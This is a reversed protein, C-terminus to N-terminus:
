DGRSHFSSGGHRVGVVDGDVEHVHGVISAQPGTRGIGTGADLSNDGPVNDDTVVVGVRADSPDDRDIVVAVELKFNEGAGHVRVEIEEGRCSL